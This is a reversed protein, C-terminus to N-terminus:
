NLIIEWIVMFRIYSSAWYKMIIQLIIITLTVIKKYAPTNATKKDPKRSKVGVNGSSSKYSTSGGSGSSTSGASENSSNGFILIAAM